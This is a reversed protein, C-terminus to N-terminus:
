GMNCVIRYIYILTAVWDPFFSFKEFTLSFDPFKAFLWHFDWNQDIDTFLWPIKKFFDPFTLANKNLDPFKKLLPSKKSFFKKQRLGNKKKKKKKKQLLIKKSPSRKKSFLNFM